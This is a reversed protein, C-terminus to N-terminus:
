YFLKELGAKYREVSFEEKTKHIYDSEKLLEKAIIKKAELESKGASCLKEFCDKVYITDKSNLQQEVADLVDDLFEM